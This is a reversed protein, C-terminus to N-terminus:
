IIGHLSLEPGTGVTIQGVLFWCVLLHSEMTETKPWYSLRARNKELTKMEQDHKIPIDGRKRLMATSVFSDFRNCATYEKKLWPALRFAHM